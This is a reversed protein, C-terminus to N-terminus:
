SPRSLSEIFADAESELDRPEDSSTSEATRGAHRFGPTSASSHGTPWFRLGGYKLAPSGGYLRDWRSCEIFAPYRSLVTGACSLATRCDFRDSFPLFAPFYAFLFMNKAGVGHEPDHAACQTRGLADVGAVRHSSQCTDMFGMGVVHCPDRSIGRYGHPSLPSCRLHEPEHETWEGTEPADVKERAPPSSKSSGGPLDLVHRSIVAPM